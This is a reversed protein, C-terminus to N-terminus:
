GEGGDEGGDEASVKGTEVATAFADVAAKVADYLTTAAENVAALQADTYQAANIKRSCANQDNVLKTQAYVIAMLVKRNIQEVPTMNDNFVQYGYDGENFTVVPIM